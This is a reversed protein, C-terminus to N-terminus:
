PTMGETFVANDYSSNKRCLVLTHRVSPLVCVTLNVIVRVAYCKSYKVGEGLTVEAYIRM